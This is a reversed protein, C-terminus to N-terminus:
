RTGRRQDLVLGIVEGADLVAQSELWHFRQMPKFLYLRSEAFIRLSRNFYRWQAFHPQLQARIEAVQGLVDKGRVRPHVTVTGDHASLDLQIVGQQDDTWVQVAHGTGAVEGIFADLERKLTRGYARCEDPTPTGVAREEVKGDRLGLIVNVFDSVRMAETRHLRLAANVLRNLEHLLATKRAEHESAGLARSGSREHAVLRDYLQAWSDITQRDAEVLGQPIPALRLAELTSVERKVGAQTSVFFQHYQFFDSNLYLALAKLLDAQDGRAAIGIQRVPVIIYQESYVAWNRAANVIIHPPNSVKEAREFGARLPVYTNGAPITTLAQPPFSFCRRAGRLKHPDLTLTTALEPHNQAPYKVPKDSRTPKTRLEM